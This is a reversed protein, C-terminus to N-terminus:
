TPSHPSPVNYSEASQDSVLVPPTSTRYGDREQSGWSYSVQHPTNTLGCASSSYCLLGLICHRLFMILAQKNEMNLDLNTWPQTPLKTGHVWGPDWTGETTNSQVGQPNVKIRTILTSEGAGCGLELEYSLHSSISSWYNGKLSLSPSAPVDNVSVNGQQSNLWTTM